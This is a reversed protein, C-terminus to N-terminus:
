MPGRKSKSATKATKKAAVKKTAVKKTAVKKAAVKKAAVKKTAVKKTAKRAPMVFDEGSGKPWARCHIEKTGVFVWTVSKMVHQKTLIPVLVPDSAYKELQKEADRFAKEIDADTAKAKLYKLEILWSYKADFKDFRPVLFLDCFGQAMEKETLVHFMGSLVCSTVLVMKLAKEDFKRMDKLGLIKMIHEHVAGLFAKATGDVAMDRQSTAIIPIRMELDSTEQLLAAFHEWQLERIVLNPVEFTSVWGIQRTASLTLMGTYFLLSIFQERPPSPPYRGFTELLEGMVTGENLVRSLVDRREQAPQGSAHFLGYFKKYDTRANPDLMQEPYSGTEILQKMFHLVMDSNFVREAAQPSFRYGNYYRELTDLLTARDGIRPDETVRPETSILEDLAREVDKRTFGALAHFRASTTINTAINFGTYLDDLLIPSVGTVFIRAISGMESGSKLTAYFQRIFGTHETLSEYVDRSGASILSNAFTDYEDIMIYLRQHISRAARMVASVMDLVEIMDRLRDALDAFGAGKAAYDAAVTECAEMVALAFADEVDGENTGRVRGLNLHLVIHANKEPTPHEHVWLGRFLEDFQDAKTIDYYHAMMSIFSSKGMRRPRLFVLNTLEPREIHALLPTKDVYFCGTRRIKGFDAIGYPIKM